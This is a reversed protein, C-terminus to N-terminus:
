VAEAIGVTRKCANKVRMYAQALSGCVFHGSTMATREPWLAEIYSGAQSGSEIQFFPFQDKEAAELFGLEVLFGPSFKAFEPDMGTKFAFGQGNVHFNATSAIVTDDLQLECIWLYEQERCARLMEHSFAEGTASSILASKAKWGLSELYLFRDITDDSIESGFSIRIRVDGLRGLKNRATRLKKRRSRSIHKNWKAGNNLSVSAREYRLDPCWRLGFREAVRHMQRFCTSDECLENFRLARWRDNILHEFACEIAEAEHGARVLIGSQYSHKSKVGSLRWYPFGLSPGVVNVSVLALMETQDDNWVVGFRPSKDAELHRIAPLMFEPMLYVNPSSADKGLARWHDIFDVTVEEVNHWLFQM